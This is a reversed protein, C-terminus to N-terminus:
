QEEEREIHFCLNNRITDWADESFKIDIEEDSLGEIEDDPVDLDYVIDVGIYDTELVVKLNAM